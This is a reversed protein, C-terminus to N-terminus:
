FMEAFKTPNLTKFFWNKWEKFSKSNKFNPELQSLPIKEYKQGFGNLKVLGWNLIDKLYM